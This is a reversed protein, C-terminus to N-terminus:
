QPKPTYPLALLVFLVSTEILYHGSGYDLDERLPCTTITNSLDFSSFVFHITSERGHRKFTITEPPLLLSLNHLEQLYLLLQSARYPRVRPGRLNPHHINFDGLLVHDASADSIAASVLSLIEHTDLSLPV